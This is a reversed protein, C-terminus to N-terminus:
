TEEPNFLRLRIRGKELVVVCGKELHIKIRDLNLTLLEAQQEPLRSIGRFLILSPGQWNQLALM